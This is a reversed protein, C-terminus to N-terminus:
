ALHTCGKPLQIHVRRLYTADTRYRGEATCAAHRPHIWTSVAGNHESPVHTLTIIIIERLRKMIMRATCISDVIYKTKYPTHM